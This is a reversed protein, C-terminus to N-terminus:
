RISGADAIPHTTEDAVAFANENAPQDQANPVTSWWVFALLLSFLTLVVYLISSM